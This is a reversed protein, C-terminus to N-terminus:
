ISNPDELLGLTKIQGKSELYGVTPAQRNGFHLVELIRHAVRHTCIERVVKPLKPSTAAVDPFPTYFRSSLEGELQRSEDDIIDTLDDISILGPVNSPGDNVAQTTLYGWGSGSGKPMYRQILAQSTYVVTVDQGTPNTPM